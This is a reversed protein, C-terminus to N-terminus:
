GGVRVAPPGWDGYSRTSRAPGSRHNEELASERCACLKVVKAPRLSASLPPNPPPLAWARVVEDGPAIFGLERRELNEDVM